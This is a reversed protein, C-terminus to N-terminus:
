QKGETVSLNKTGTGGHICAVSQASFKTDMLFNGGTPSLLIGQNLAATTGISCYMATDSINQLFLYNRNRNAALAQTTTTAVAVVTHTITTRVQAEAGTALSLLIALLAGAKM